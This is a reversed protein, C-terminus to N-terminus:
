DDKLAGDHWIAVCLNRESCPVDRLICEECSQYVNPQYVQGEYVLVHKCLMRFLKRLKQKTLGKPLEGRDAKRRVSSNVDSGLRPSSGSTDVDERKKSKAM